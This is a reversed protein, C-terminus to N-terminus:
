KTMSDVRQQLEAVKNEITEFKANLREEMQVLRAEMKEFLALQIETQWSELQSHRISSPVQQGQAPESYPSHMGPIIANLHLQSVPSTPQQSNESTMSLTSPIESLSNQTNAQNIHRLLQTLTPNNSSAGDMLTKLTNMDIKATSSTEAIVEPQSINLSRIMSTVTSLNFAESPTKQPHQQKAEIEHGRLTIRAVQLCAKKEKPLSLFKLRLLQCPKPVSSSFEVQYYKCDDQNLHKEVQILTGRLTKFYEEDLYVEVTRSNSILSLGQFKLPGSIDFLPPSSEEDQIFTVISDINKVSDSETLEFYETFEATTKWSTTCHVM